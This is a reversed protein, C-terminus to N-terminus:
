SSDEYDSENDDKNEGKKRKPEPSNDVQENNEDEHNKEEKEKEDISTKDVIEVTDQYLKELTSKQNLNTWFAVNKKRKEGKKTKPQYRPVFGSSTKPQTEQRIRKKGRNNEPKNKESKDVNGATIGNIIPVSKRRLSTAM